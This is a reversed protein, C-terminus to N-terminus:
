GTSEGGDRVPRTRPDRPWCLVAGLVYLLAAGPAGAMPSASGTFLMGVGEGGLSISISWAM